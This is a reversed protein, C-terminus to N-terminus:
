NCNESYFDVVRMIKRIKTYNKNANMYDIVQSCNKFMNTWMSEYNKENLKILSNDDLVMFYNSYFYDEEGGTTKSNYYAKTQFIAKNQQAKYDNLKEYKKDFTTSDIDILKANEMHTEVKVNSLTSTTTSSEVVHGYGSQPNQYLVLGKEDVMKWLFVNRDKKSNPDQRSDYRLLTKQEHQNEPAIQTEFLQRSNDWRTLFGFTKSDDATYLKGDLTIRDIFYGIVGGAKKYDTITGTISDGKQTIVYGKAPFEPYAKIDANSEFPQGSLAFPIVTLAIALLCKKIFIKM